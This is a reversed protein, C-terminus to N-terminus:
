LKGLDAIEYCGPKKFTFRSEHIIIGCDAADEDLLKFIQDYTCFLKEKSPPALSKFLLHATTAQGPIAIRKSPIEALDFPEKAIIKPGAHNGLASGIPLLQYRDTVQAFTAFSLKILPFRGQVAWRNLQEIGGFTPNPNLSNGILGKLWAHFLFTDNPCPSLAVPIM